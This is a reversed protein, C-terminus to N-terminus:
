AFRGEYLHIGLHFGLSFITAGIIFGLVILLPTVVNVYGVGALLRMWLNAFLVPCDPYRCKGAHM